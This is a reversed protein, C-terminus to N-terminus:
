PKHKLREITQLIAQKAQEPEEIDRVAQEMPCLGDGQRNIIHETLTDYRYAIGFRDFVATASQSIVQAFVGKAGMLVYLMAAAKGVMTDAAWIESASGVAEAAELLPRIGAGDSIITNCDALVVLSHRGSKLKDKAYTLKDMAYTLKDM